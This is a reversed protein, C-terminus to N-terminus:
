VGKLMVRNGSPLFKLGFEELFVKRHPPGILDAMFDDGKGLYRVFLEM